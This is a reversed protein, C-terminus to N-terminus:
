FYDLLDKTSLNPRKTALDIYEPNLEIGIYDRGLKRAVDGTTGSGFFPDLVIGSKYTTNCNCSEYKIQEKKKPMPGLKLRGISKDGQWKGSTRMEEITRGAKGSGSGWEQEPTQMFIKKKPKGCEICVFQPCCAKIPTEILEPPFVAFHADQYNKTTITWVTRKNRHNDDFQQEFFYNKNKVFFYMYEFDVTFRDNVSVPIPNPKHWIITNRRIWGEDVMGVSFREPIGILNKDHYSESINVFLSGEPKLVRKVEDFIKILNNVYEEPTKELGIQNLNDYDRLNWYPPSTICMDISEYPLKKLVSLADGQYIKNREM